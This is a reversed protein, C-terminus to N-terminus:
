ILSLQSRDPEEPHDGAEPTIEPRAPDPAATAQLHRPPPRNPKDPDVIRGEFAQRVEHVRRLHDPDPPDQGLIKLEHLYYRPVRRLDRPIVAADDRVFLVLCELVASHVAVFGPGYPGLQQSAFRLPDGKVPATKIMKHPM